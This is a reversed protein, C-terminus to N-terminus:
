VPVAELVHMTGEVPIVPRLSLGSQAFLNRFQGEIRDCGGYLVRATLDVMSMGLNDSQDPIIMEFAVLRAHSPM